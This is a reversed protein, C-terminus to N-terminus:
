AHPAYGVKMAHFIAIGLADAADDPKPVEELLLIKRVTEQIVRKDARGNGTLIRKVALGQYEFIALGCRATVLLVVGRAQGVSMVTKANIGFFLQEVAVCSPKFEKVIALLDSELQVLRNGMAMEKSTTFCGYAVASFATIDKQSIVDVIGWGM